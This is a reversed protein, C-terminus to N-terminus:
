GEASRALPTNNCQKPSAYPRTHSLDLNQLISDRFSSSLNQGNLIGHFKRSRYSHLMMIIQGNAGCPSAWPGFFHALYHTSTFRKDRLSSCRNWQDMFPGRVLYAFNRTACIGPINEGSASNLPFRPNAIGAHMVARADRPSFTGPMGPAHVDAIKRIKRINHSKHTSPHQQERFAKNCMGHSCLQWTMHLIKYHDNFEFIPHFCLSIKM